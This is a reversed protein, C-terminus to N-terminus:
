FGVGEAIPLADLVAEVITEKDVETLTYSDGKLSRLYDDETGSNGANLWIQYASLGDKGDKVEPLDEATVFSKNDIEQKTYYNALNVDQSGLVEWVGNVYIYETYLNDETEPDKVLYVTTISINETPLSDVVVISFKPITSIREDIENKTYVTGKQVYNVLRSLIDEQFALINNDGNFTPRTGAYNLGLKDLVTNKNDHKHRANTNDKIAQIYESSIGGANSGGDIIPVDEIYESEACIADRITFSGMFPKIIQNDKTIILDLKLRGDYKLDISSFDYIVTNNEILGIKNNYKQRNPNEIDVSVDCGFYSEPLTFKIGKVYAEGQNGIMRDYYVPFPTKILNIEIYKIEIGM